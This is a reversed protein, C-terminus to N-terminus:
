SGTGHPRYQFALGLNPTVFMYAFPARDNISGRLMVGVKAWPNTNTLSDVRAEIVTDGNVKRSYLNFQDHKDWVDSGGGTVTWTGGSERASGLKAPYGINADSWGSRTHTVTVHSFRATNLAGDNHACVAMGACMTAGGFAIQQSTGLQTWQRGGRSYYASVRNGRRVLKLWIPTQIGAVTVSGTYPSVAKDSFHTDAHHQVVPVIKPAPSYPPPANPNMPNVSDFTLAPLGPHQDDSAGTNYQTEILKIVDGRRAGAVDFFYWLAGPVTNNYYIQPVATASQGSRTNVLTIASLSDYYQNAMVGVYLNNPPKATIRLKAMTTPTGFAIAGGRSAIGAERVDATSGDRAYVQPYNYGATIGNIYGHVSVKLYAPLHILTKLSYKLPSPGIYMDTSTKQGAPILTHTFPNANVWVGSGTGAPTTAVIVYGDHGFARDQAGLTVWPKTFSTRTALAGEQTAQNNPNLITSTTGNILLVSGAAVASGSTENGSAVANATTHTTVSADSVYTNRSPAPSPAPTYTAQPTPATYSNNGSEPATYTAATRSSQNNSGGGSLFIVLGAIALVFCAAGAIWVKPSVHSRSHDASRTRSGGAEPGFREDIKEMRYTARYSPGSITLTSAKKNGSGDQVLFEELPIWHQKDSSVEHGRTLRRTQAMRGITSRPYPGTIQSLYRTYYRTIEDPM